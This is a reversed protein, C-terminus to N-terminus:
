SFPPFPSKPTERGWCSLPSVFCFLFIFQLESNQEKVQHFHASVYCCWLPSKPTKRSTMISEWRTLILKANPSMTCLISDRRPSWYMEWPKNRTKYSCPRNTFLICSSDRYAFHQVRIMILLLKSLEFIVPGSSPPPILTVFLHFRPPKNKQLRWIAPLSITNQMQKYPQLSNQLLFFSRTDLNSHLM